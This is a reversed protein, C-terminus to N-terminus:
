EMMSVEGNFNEIAVEVNSNEHVAGTIGHCKKMHKTLGRRTKLVAECIECQAPSADIHNEQIHRKATRKLSYTRDCITCQYVGGETM